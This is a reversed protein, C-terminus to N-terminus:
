KNKIGPIKVSMEPYLLELYSTDCGDKDTWGHVKFITGCGNVLM